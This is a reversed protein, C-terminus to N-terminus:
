RTSICGGLRASTRAAGAHDVRHVAAGRGPRHGALSAPPLAGRLHRVELPATVVAAANTVEIRWGDENLGADRAGALTWGDPKSLDNPRWGPGATNKFSFHWGCGHQGQNWFPFPWGLQHAISAHQHTAVYGEPDIIRASLTTAWAQRM